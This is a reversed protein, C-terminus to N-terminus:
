GGQNYIAAFTDSNNNAFTSNSVTATGTEGNFLASGGAATHNNTLAMANLILTGANKIAGGNNPNDANSLTLGSVSLSLGAPVSFISFSPTGAAASRQLTLVNANPGQIILNKNMLLEGSTLTIPNAVKGPTLDFTITAGDCAHITDRLSGAGSDNSNIVVSSGCNVSITATAIGGGLGADSASLSAQVQFSGNANSNLAPTFKLGANGEAFTIFTNNTIQTTGDNKFLTGGTINTIKFHTVEAGDAPNRSIVLGSTTQANVTTSANTVAPTDAVPSVTLVFTDNMSQSNNGNVTVSITSTGFLNAAPNITLIRTSGSGSVAINAANNPVLTTNSSTATVSTINAGGGVNFTFQLQTDENTTKNTIDEVSVQAEFAGVDVTGNVIRDFGAGRQDTTLGANTTATNDGADLAPSGAM